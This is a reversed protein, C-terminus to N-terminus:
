FGEEELERSAVESRTTARADDKVSRARPSNTSLRHFFRELAEMSTCRTGGVQITELQIGKMGATAWRHLTSPAAPRGARRRPIREAAQQFTLIEESMDIM